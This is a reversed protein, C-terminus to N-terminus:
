TNPRVQEVRVYGKATPFYTAGGVNFVLQHPKGLQADPICHPHLLGRPDFRFTGYVFVGKAYECEFPEIECNEIYRNFAM